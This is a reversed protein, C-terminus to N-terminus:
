PIDTNSGALSLFGCGNYGEAGAETMPRGDETLMQLNIVNNGAFFHFCCGNYGEAGAETMRRGDETKLIM